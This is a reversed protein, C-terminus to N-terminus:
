AAKQLSVSTATFGPGMATLLTRAALGDQIVRELVFLATPASMNGYEALIAREHILSGQALSFARELAGVVKTGGPHFAFRDIDSLALGGRGLIGSVASAMNAEAFPPIDRDFIVGFGQPDISWGMIQLTDPWLHQGSMELEALGSEGARLVCAAAGDGFLATAVINAKTLKDLRFALSCLEIAVLLVVSGPRAQAMRSAISLGGVGGACGLGFVPVREIDCRFGMRDAVRAELSPTAVGTSSITVVTDVDAATLGAADLARTAADIFLQSGGEVYAASREPWGLPEFYWDLPRVAYRRLIGSTEFVRALREYDGFRAAFGGHAAAAVDRQEICHPPVASAVSILKVSFPM